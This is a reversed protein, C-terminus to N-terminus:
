GDSRDLDRLCLLNMGFLGLIAGAVFGPFAGEVADKVGMLHSVGAGLVAGGIAAPLLLIALIVWGIGIGDLSFGM